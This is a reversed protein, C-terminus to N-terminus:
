EQPWDFLPGLTIRPSTTTIATGGNPLNAALHEVHDHSGTAHSIAALILAIDRRDLNALTWALPIPTWQASQPAEPNPHGALSAAIVLVSREAPSMVWEVTQRVARVWNVYARGIGALDGSVFQDLFDQRRLWTNHRILLEVAAEDQYSGHAGARLGANVEDSTM